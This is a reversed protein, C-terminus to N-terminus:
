LTGVQDIGIPVLTKRVWFGIFSALRTASVDFVSATAGGPERRDEVGDIAGFTKQGDAIMMRANTIAVTM